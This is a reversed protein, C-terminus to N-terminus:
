NVVSLKFTADASTYERATLDVVGPEAFIVSAALRKQLFSKQPRAGRWGNSELLGARLKAGPHPHGGITQLAGAPSGM